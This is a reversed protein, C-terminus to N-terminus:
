MLCNCPYLFNSRCMRAWPLVDLWIGSLRAVQLFTTPRKLTKFCDLTLSTIHPSTLSSNSLLHPSWKSILLTPLKELTTLILNFTGHPEQDGIQARFSQEHSSYMWVARNGCNLCPCFFQILFSNATFCFKM